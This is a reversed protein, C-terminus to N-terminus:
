GTTLLERLYSAKWLMLLISDGRRSEAATNLTWVICQKNYFLIRDEREWDSYKFNVKEKMHLYFQCVFTDWWFVIILIM